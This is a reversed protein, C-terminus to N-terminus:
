ATGQVTNNTSEKQLRVDHHCETVCWDGQITNYHPEIELRDNCEARPRRRADKDLTIM